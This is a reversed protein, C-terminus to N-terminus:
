VTSRCMGPDYSLRLTKGAPAPVITRLWSGSIPDFRGYLLKKALLFEVECHGGLLSMDWEDQSPGAVKPAM